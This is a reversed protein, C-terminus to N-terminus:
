ILAAQAYRIKQSNSSTSKLTDVADKHKQLDKNDWNEEVYEILMQELREPNTSEKVMSPIQDRDVGAAFLGKIFCDKHNLVSKAVDRCDGPTM